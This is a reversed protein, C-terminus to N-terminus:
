AIITALERMIKVIQNDTLGLDARMNAHNLTLLDKGNILSNNWPGPDLGISSIWAQLTASDWTEVICKVRSSLQAGVSGQSSSGSNISESNFSSSQPPTGFAVQPMSVNNRLMYDSTSMWVPIGPVPEDSRTTNLQVESVPNRSVYATSTVPPTHSRRNRNLNHSRRERNGTSVNTDNTRRRKVCKMIWFIGVVLLFAGFLSSIVILAIEWGTLGSKRCGCGCGDVEIDHSDHCGTYTYCNWSSCQIFYPTYVLRGCSDDLNANRVNPYENITKKDETCCVYQNASCRDDDCQLSVTSTGNSGVTQQTPCTCANCGWGFWFDSPETDCECTTIAADCVIVLSDHMFIICLTVFVLILNSLSICQKSVTDNDHRHNGKLKGM